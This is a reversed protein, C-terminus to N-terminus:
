CRPNSPLDYKATQKEGAPLGVRVNLLEHLLLAESLVEGFQFGEIDLLINIM